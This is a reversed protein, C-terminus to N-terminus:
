FTHAQNVQKKAKVYLHTFIFVCLLYLQLIFAPRHEMMQVQLACTQDIQSSLMACTMNLLHDVANLYM